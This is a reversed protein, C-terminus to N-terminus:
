LALVQLPRTVKVTTALVLSSALDDDDVGSTAATTDAASGTGSGTGSSGSAATGAATGSSAAATPTGWTSTYGIASGSGRRQQKHQQQAQTSLRRESLSQQQQQQAAQQQQQLLLTHGYLGASAPVSLTGGLSYGALGLAVGGGSSVLPPTAGRTLSGSSAMSLMSLTSTVRDSRERESDRLDSVVDRDPRFGADIHHHQHTHM